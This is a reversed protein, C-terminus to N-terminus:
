SRCKASCLHYDRIAAYWGDCRLRLGSSSQLRGIKHEALRIVRLRFAPCIFNGAQGVNGAAAAAADDVGKAMFCAFSDPILFRDDVGDKVQLLNGGAAHLKVAAAM